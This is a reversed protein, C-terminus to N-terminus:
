PDTRVKDALRRYLEDYATVSADLSHQAAVHARGARDMAAMSEPRRLRQPMRGGCLSGTLLLVKNM